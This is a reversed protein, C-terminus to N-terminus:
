SEDRKGLRARLQEMGRHLNVRVSGPTLGTRAAIEPGTMGEVLRLILTERYAEPLERIAALARAAEADSQDLAVLDAPLEATKPSRRHFDSARNRAIRALWAGFAADDRLAPLRRMALLFVDQVLDDVEHFPVRALLIGHAMRAYRAYLQGFAEREGRRAAAVLAADGPTDSIIPATVARHHRLGISVDVSPMLDRHFGGGGEGAAEARAKHFM